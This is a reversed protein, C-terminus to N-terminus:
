AATAQRGAPTGYLLVVAPPLLWWQEARLMVLMADPVAFHTAPVAAVFFTINAQVQTKTYHQWLQLICMFMPVDYSGCRSCTKVRMAATAIAHLLVLLLLV